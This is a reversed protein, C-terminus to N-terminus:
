GNQQGNNTFEPTGVGEAFATYMVGYDIEKFPTKIYFKNQNMWRMHKNNECRFLLKSLQHFVIDGVKITM